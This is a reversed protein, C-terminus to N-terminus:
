DTVFRGSERQRELTESRDSDDRSDGERGSDREGVSSREPELARSLSRSLSFGLAVVSVRSATLLLTEMCAGAFRCLLRQRLQEGASGAAAAAAASAHSHSLSFFPGRSCPDMSHVVHARIADM